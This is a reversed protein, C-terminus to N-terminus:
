VVQKRRAANWGLIFEISFWSGAPELPPGDSLSIMKNEDPERAQRLM